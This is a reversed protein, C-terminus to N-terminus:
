EKAAEDVLDVEKVLQLAHVYSKCLEEFYVANEYCTEMDPGVCIVGHNKLLLANKGALYKVVLKALQPDKPGAFPAIHIGGNLHFKMGLTILPVDRGALALATAYPSHTHVVAGVDARNRYIAAHFSSDRSLPASQLTYNGDFDLVNINGQCLDEYAVKSPAIIAAESSVKLSISGKNPGESVLGIAKLRKAFRILKDTEEYMFV